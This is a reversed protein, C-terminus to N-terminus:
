YFNSRYHEALDRDFDELTIIDDDGYEDFEAVFAEAAERDAFPTPNMGMIDDVHESDTVRVFFADTGDILDGSEFDTVWVGTIEANSGDFREPDVYYALLCGASCFYERHGDDDVLQANWAPYEEAIMNCVACPEDEPFASPEDHSHEDEVDTSSEDDSPSEDDDTPEEGACGALGFVVGAGALEVIRRRTVPLRSPSM